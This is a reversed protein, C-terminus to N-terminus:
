RGPGSRPGLLKVQDNLDRLLQLRQRTRGEIGAAERRLTPWRRSFGDRNVLRVARLEDLAATEGIRDISSPSVSASKTM